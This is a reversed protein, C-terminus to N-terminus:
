LQCIYGDLLLQAMEETYGEALKTDAGECRVHVHQKDVGPCKHGLFKKLVEASNSKLTWPKKIFCEPVNHSRLNLSCGDVDLAELAFKAVFAISEPENWLSCNKPWEMVVCGGLKTVKRALVTANRILSRLQQM